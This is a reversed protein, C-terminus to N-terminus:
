VFNIQSIIVICTVVLGVLNGFLGYTITFGIGRIGFNNGSIENLLISEISLRQHYEVKSISFTELQRIQPRLFRTISKLMYNTHASIFMFSLWVLLYLLVPVYKWPDGDTMAQTFKFSHMPLLVLCYCSFMTGLCEEYLDSIEVLSDFLNLVQDINTLLFRQKAVKLFGETLWFLLMAFAVAFCYTYFTLIVGYTAAVFRYGAVLKLATSQGEPNLNNQFFYEYNANHMITTYFDWRTQLRLDIGVADVLTMCIVFTVFIRTIYTVKRKSPLAGTIKLQQFLREYAQTQIMIKEFLNKKWWVTYIFSAVCVVWVFLVLAMMKKKSSSDLSEPAAIPHVIARWFIHFITLFHM